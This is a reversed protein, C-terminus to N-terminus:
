PKYFMVRTKAEQDRYVYLLSFNLLRRNWGWKAFLKFTKEASELDAKKFNRKSGFIVILCKPRPVVKKVLGSLVEYQRLVKEENMRSNVLFVHYAMARLHKNELKVQEDADNKARRIRGYDVVFTPFFKSFEKIVHRYHERDLETQDYSFVIVQHPPKEAIATVRRVAPRVWSSDSTATGIRFLAVLVLCVLKSM